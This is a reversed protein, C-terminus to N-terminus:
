RRNGLFLIAVLGLGIWMVSSSSLSSLTASIGTTTVPYGTAQRTISGNSNLVTGAPIAELEALTMGSKALQTLLASMASTNSSSPVVYGGTSPDLTIDSAPYTSMFAATAEDTSGPIIETPTLDTSDQGLGSWNWKTAPVYNHLGDFQPADAVQEGSQNWAQSRFTRDKPVRWGPFKGHSADLALRRGNPLVAVPFVHSFIEPQSPDVALTVIEWPVRFTDLMACILMTYIACDGRMQQMRVLVSPEILLQLQDRENLWALILAAHHVFKLQHKAWWWISEAIARADTSPDRGSAAFAPGGRWQAVASRACAKLLPDAASKEIHRCMIRVTQATAEDPDLAAPVREARKLFEPSMLPPGSVEPQPAMEPM